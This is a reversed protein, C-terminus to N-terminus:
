PTTGGSIIRTGESREGLGELLAHRSRGDLILAEAVSDLARLCAEAKPIMGGAIVGKAILDRTEQATLRPLLAGSKDCIGPVDTLFVLRRAHVAAAIVGAVTDANINLLTGAGEGANTAQLAVPAVVPIYGGDMVARLPAVDVRDVDGVFGLAPDTIRAELFRGDAGCLGMAKGGLACLGAVLEKNVLGALVAVVVQLSQADTVRLGRVFRTPVKQKDLWQTITKGGGHVVIPCAGRRQLTVLDELTTDHAGLTSGGIKVVLTDTSM